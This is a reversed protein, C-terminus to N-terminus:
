LLKANKFLINGHIIVNVVLKSMLFMITDQMVLVNIVVLQEIILLIVLKVIQLHEEM